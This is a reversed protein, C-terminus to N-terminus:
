RQDTDDRNVEVLVVRVCTGMDQVSEFSIKGQHVEMIAMCVALGLGAGGRGRSRAKDVMYFAETIKSLEGEPIGCGNDSVSIEYGGKISKGSLIVQGNKGDIAKRANDLLNICVTKM